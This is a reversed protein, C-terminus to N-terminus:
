HNKTSFNSVIFIKPLFWASLKTKNAEKPKITIQNIRIHNYRLTINHTTSSRPCLAWLLIWDVVISMTEPLLRHYSATLKMKLEKSEFLALNGQWTELGHGRPRCDSMESSSWHELLSRWRLLVIRLIYCLWIECIFKCVFGLHWLLEDQDFYRLFGGTDVCFYNFLFFHKM